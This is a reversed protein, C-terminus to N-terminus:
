PRDMCHMGCSAPQSILKFEGGGTGLFFSVHPSSPGGQSRSSGGLAHQPVVATCSPFSTLGARLFRGRLSRLLVGSSGAMQSRLDDPM